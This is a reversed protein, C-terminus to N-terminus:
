PCANSSRAVVLVPLDRMYWAVTSGELAIALDFCAVKMFPRLDFDCYLQQLLLVLASLDVVSRLDMEHSSLPFQQMEM